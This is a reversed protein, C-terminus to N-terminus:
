DAKWACLPLDAGLSAFQLWEKPKFRGDDVWPWGDGSRGCGPLEGLGTTYKQGAGGPISPRDTM